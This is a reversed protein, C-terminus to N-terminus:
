VVLFNSFINQKRQDDLPITFNFVFSIIMNCNSHVNAKTNPGVSPSLL